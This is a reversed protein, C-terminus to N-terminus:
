RSGAPPPPEEGGLRESPLFKSELPPLGDIAGLFLTYVGFGSVCLLLGFLLILFRKIKWM